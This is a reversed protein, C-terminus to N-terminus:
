LIEEAFFAFDGEIFTGCKTGAAFTKDAQIEATRAFRQDIPQFANFFRDALVVLRFYAVGIFFPLQELGHHYFYMTDTKPHSASRNELASARLLADPLHM